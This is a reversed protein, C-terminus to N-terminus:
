YSFYDSSIINLLLNLVTYVTIIYWLGIQLIKLPIHSDTSLSSDTVITGKLIPVQFPKITKKTEETCNSYKFM